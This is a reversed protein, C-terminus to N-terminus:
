RCPTFGGDVLESVVEDLMSPHTAVGDGVWFQEDGRINDKLWERCADTLPTITTMVGHYDIRFDAGSVNPRASHEAQDSPM